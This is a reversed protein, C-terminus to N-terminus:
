SSSAELIKRRVSQFRELTKQASGKAEHIQEKLGDIFQLIEAPPAGDEISQWLWDFNTALQIGRQSSDLSCDIADV